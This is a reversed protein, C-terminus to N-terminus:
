TQICATYDTACVELGERSSMTRKTGAPVPSDDCEAADEEDFNADDQVCAHNDM